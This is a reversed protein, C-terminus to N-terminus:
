KLLASFAPLEDIFQGSKGHGVSEADRVLIEVMSVSVKIRNFIDEIATM